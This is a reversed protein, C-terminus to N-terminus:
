IFRVPALAAADVLDAFIATGLKEVLRPIGTAYSQVTPWSMLRPHLILGAIPADEAAAWRQVVEAWSLARAPNWEFCDLAPAFDPLSGTQHNTTFTSKVLFGAARLVHDTTRDCAGYPPTFAPFFAPGFARELIARGVRVDSDQEAPTRAPGFEFKDENTGHNTHRFGHQHIEIRGPHKHWLCMLRDRTAPTLWDPVVACTLKVGATCLATLLADTRSDARGVDDVRILAAM